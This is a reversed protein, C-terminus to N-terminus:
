DREITKKGEPLTEVEDVLDACGNKNLVITTRVNVPGKNGDIEQGKIENEHKGPPNIKIDEM